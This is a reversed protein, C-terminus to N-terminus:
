ASHRRLFGALRTRWRASKEMSQHSSSSSSRAHIQIGPSMMWTKSRSREGPTGGEGGTEGGSAGSAAHTHIRGCSWQGASYSPGSLCACWVRSSAIATQKAAPHPRM